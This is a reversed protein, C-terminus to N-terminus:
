GGRYRKFQGRLYLKELRNRSREGIGDAVGPRGLAPRRRSHSRNGPRDLGAELQQWHRASFYNEAMTWGGRADMRTRHNRGM